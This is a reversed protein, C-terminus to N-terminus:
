RWPCYHLFDNTSSAYSSPLSEPFTYIGLSLSAFLCREGYVISKCPALFNLHDRATLLVFSTIIESKFSTITTFTERIVNRSKRATRIDGDTIDVLVSRYGQNISGGFSFGAPTDIEIRSWCDSISRPGFHDHLVQRLELDSRIM